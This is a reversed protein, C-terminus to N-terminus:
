LIRPEYKIIRYEVKSNFIWVEYKYGKAIVAEAKRQNNVLRGKYKDKGYGDWWWQAKVEIIRNEKPIYIDPYYKTTHENFNVYDFIPLQYKELKNHMLIEPEPYGEEFLKDLVLNEYGRISVVNGSPLIHEKGSANSKRSNKISDPKLFSCGVGFLELNTERRKDNIIDQEEKTKNRNKEASKGWGSYYENGYKELKTKKSKDKFEDCQTPYKTGYKEISTEEIKVRRDEYYETTRTSLASKKNESDSLKQEETWNQKTISIEKGICSSSGCTAAYSENKQYFSKPNGCHPCTEEIGTIYKEYYQQYTLNHKRLHKTFHGNDKCYKKGDLKSEIYITQQTNNM